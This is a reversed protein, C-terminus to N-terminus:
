ILECRNNENCFYYTTMKSFTSMCIILFFLNTMEGGLSLEYVNQQTDEWSKKHMILYKTIGYM